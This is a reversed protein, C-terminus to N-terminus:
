PYLWQWDMGEGSHLLVSGLWLCSYWGPAGTQQSLKRETGTGSHLANWATSGCAHVRWPFRDTAPVFASTKEGCWMRWGCTGQFWLAFQPPTSYSLLLPFSLPHGIVWFSIVARKIHSAMGRGRKVRGLYTINVPKQMGPMHTRHAADLSLLTSLNIVLNPASTYLYNFVRKGWM